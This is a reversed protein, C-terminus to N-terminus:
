INNSACRRARRPGVGSTKKKLCKSLERSTFAASGTRTFSIRRNAIAMVM